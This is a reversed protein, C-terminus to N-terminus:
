MWRERTLGCRVCRRRQLGADEWPRWMTWRHSWPWCAQARPSYVERAAEEALRRMAKIQDNTM